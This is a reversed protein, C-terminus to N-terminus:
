NEPDSKRRKQFPDPTPRIDYFRIDVDKGEVDKTTVRNDKVKVKSSRPVHVVELQPRDLRFVVSDDTMAVDHSDGHFKGWPEKIEIAAVAPYRAAKFYDGMTLEGLLYKNLQAETM